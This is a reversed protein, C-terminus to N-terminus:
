PQWDGSDWDQANSILLIEPDGDVAADILVLSRKYNVTKTAVLHRGDRAWSPSEYDGAGNSVVRSANGALPNVVVLEYRGGSRRSYAIEGSPGWDCSVNENGQFTLKTLAGGSRSMMYLHPRGEHGSVFVLRNGDPSWSPSAKASNPTKTLRTLRESAVDKVFIEPRGEKSLVMAISRGDPSATGGTNIGAYSAVYERQGGLTDVKILRPAGGLYSTYIVNRGDPMWRPSMNVTGDKTIPRLGAGDSDCLYLEKGKGSAGVLVLKSSAFGKGGKLSAVIDDAIRHALTRIDGATGSIGKGYIQQGGSHAYIKAEFGNGAAQASGSFALGGGSPVEVFLGSRSLDQRLVKVFTAGEGTATFGNWSMGSKTSGEKTVDIRIPAAGAFIPLSLVLSLILNRM